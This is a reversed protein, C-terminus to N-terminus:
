SPVRTKSFLGSVGPCRSVSDRADGAKDRDDGDCGDGSWGTKFLQLIFHRASNKLHVLHNQLIEWVIVFRFIHKQDIYILFYM